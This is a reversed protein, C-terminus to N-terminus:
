RAVASVTLFSHLLFALCQCLEHHNDRDHPHNGRHGEGVVRDEVRARLDTTRGLFDRRFQAKCALKCHGISIANSDDDIWLLLSKGSLEDVRYGRMMRIVISSLPNHDFFGARPGLDEEM